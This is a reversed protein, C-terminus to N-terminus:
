SKFTANFTKIFEQEMDVSQNGRNNLAINVMDISVQETLRLETALLSDGKNIVSKLAAEVGAYYGREKISLPGEKIVSYAEELNCKAHDILEQM